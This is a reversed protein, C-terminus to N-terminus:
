PQRRFQVVLQGDPTAALGMSVLEAQVAVLRDASVQAQVWRDAGDSRLTAVVGQRALMAVLQAALQDPNASDIVATPTGLGVPLSKIGHPDDDGAPQQLLFPLVAVALVAAIGAFRRNSAQGQPFLWASVRSLLSPAPPAPPPVAPQAFVGKAQLGNMIRRQTAQDLEATHQQQLEFFDRLAAAQRTEPDDPVGKGALVDLWKDPTDEAM